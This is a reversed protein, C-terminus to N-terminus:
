TWFLFTTSVSVDSLCGKCACTNSDNSFCILLMEQKQVGLMNLDFSHAIFWQCTFEKGPQYKGPSVYEGFYREINTRSLM